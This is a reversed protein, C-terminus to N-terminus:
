RFRRNKKNIKNKEKLEKEEKKWEMIEMNKETREKVNVRKLPIRYSVTWNFGFRLGSSYDGFGPITSPAILEAKKKTTLVKVRASLGLFMNKFFWLEAKGGIVFEAWQASLTEKGGEFSEGTYGEIMNFNQSFTSYGYRLGVYLIDDDIRKRRDYINFDVGLLGFAGDISNNTSDSMYDFSSYGAEFAAFKDEKFEYDTLVMLENKESSASNILFNGLDVGLRLGEYRYAVTDEQAAINLSVLLLFIILSFNLLNIRM